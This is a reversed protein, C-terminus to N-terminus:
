PAGVSGPINYRNSSDNLVWSSTRQQSILWTPFDVGGNVSSVEEKKLIKM